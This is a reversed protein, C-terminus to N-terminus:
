DCDGCLDLAVKLIETVDHQHSKSCLSFVTMLSILNSVNNRNIQYIFEDGPKSQRGKLNEWNIFTSVPICFYVMPQTGAAYQQKQISIEIQTEDPTNLLFFTPLAIHAEHFAFEAIQTEIPKSVRIERSDLFEAVSNSSILLEELKKRSVLNLKAAQVLLESLEYLYKVKAEEHIGTPTKISFKFNYSCM